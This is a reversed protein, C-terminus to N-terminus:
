MSPSHDNAGRFDRYYEKLILQEGSYFEIWGSKSFMCSIKGNKIVAGEETITVEAKTETASLANDSGNFEANQTARVRLANTGWAEIMVTENGQKAILKNNKDFFYM